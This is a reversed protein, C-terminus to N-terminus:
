NLFKEIESKCSMDWCKIFYRSAESRHAISGCFDHILVAYQVATVEIPTDYTISM